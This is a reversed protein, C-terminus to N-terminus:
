FRVNDPVGNSHFGPFFLSILFLVFFIAIATLAYRLTKHIFGLGVKELQERSGLLFLFGIIALVIVSAPKNKVASALGNQSLEAMFGYAMAVLVVALFLLTLVGSLGVVKREESSRKDDTPM